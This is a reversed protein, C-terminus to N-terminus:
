DIISVNKDFDFLHPQKETDPYGIAIAIRFSYGDPINLKDKYYNKKEGNIVKKVCGIILSGLGLSTAALHINEVAIGADVDSWNFGDEASLYIILPADFYFTTDTNPNLDKQLQQNIPNNGDVVSFHIEQRNTATPAKLGAEVLVKCIDEPIAKDSYKRISSRSDITKLTEIM